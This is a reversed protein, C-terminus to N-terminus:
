ESFGTVRAAMLAVDDEGDPPFAALLGDCVKEVDTPLTGLVASLRTLSDGLDEHRREILGDTTMVLVSGPPAAVQVASPQPLRLGLLPGHEDVFRVSGDPTRLLPPLHGANAVHLLGTESDVLVVCLTLTLQAEVAALLNEIRDLIARPSHEEIAYARLAHRVQGMLMAADLSHGAVDGVALLLGGRTPLAEYFDGGIETHESAPLYRVALEALPSRPLADPLFSRQLTLALDHEETYSRLAELALACAQALQTLLQEDDPTAVVEAPVALCVPPRGPKARAIGVALMGGPILHAPFGPWPRAEVLLLRTGTREGFEHYSPLERVDVEGGEVGPPVAAAEVSLPAEEARTTTRVASAPEGHPSILAAVATTGLVIAAGEAAARAVETANDASYLLHTAENLHLLRDALHEARRRARAYRLAATVTALLEDPAIPETLYADAGRNLGQTRDTATIASASVHIVPLAATVADAKIRECVDFGTMDPLRVDVVAVEPLPEGSKLITLAQTGDEAEVVTHGARSLTTRLVYRNTPNDDVILISAPSNDSPSPDPM